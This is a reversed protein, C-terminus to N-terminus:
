FLHKMYNKTQNEKKSIQHSKGTNPLFENNKYSRFKSYTGKCFEILFILSM